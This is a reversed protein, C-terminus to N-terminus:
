WWAIAMVGIFAVLLLTGAFGPNTIAGLFDHHMTAAGQAWSPGCWLAWQVQHWAVGISSEDSL